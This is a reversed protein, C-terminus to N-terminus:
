QIKGVCEFTVLLTPKMKPIDCVLLNIEAVSHTLSVGHVCFDGTLFNQLVEKDTQEGLHKHKQDNDHPPPPLPTTTPEDEEDQGLL